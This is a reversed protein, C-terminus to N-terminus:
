RSEKWRELVHAPEHLIQCFALRIDVLHVSQLGYVLDRTCITEFWFLAEAQRTTDSAVIHQDLHPQGLIVAKATSM